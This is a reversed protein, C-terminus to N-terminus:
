RVLSYTLMFRLGFRSLDINSDRNASAGAGNINDDLKSGDLKDFVLSYFPQVVFRTGEYNQAGFAFKMDFTLGYSNGKSPTIFSAKNLTRKVGSKTSFQMSNYSVHANAGIGFRNTVPTYVGAGVSYTNIKLKVNRQYLNEGDNYKTARTQQYQSFGLELNFLSQTTGVIISLGNPAIFDQFEKEQKNNDNYHYLIDTAQKFNGLGFGYGAGMYYEQRGLFDQAFSLSTIFLFTFAIFFLRM